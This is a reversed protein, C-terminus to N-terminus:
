KLIDLKEDQIVRTGSTVGVGVVSVGVAVTVSVFPFAVSVVVAVVGREFAM